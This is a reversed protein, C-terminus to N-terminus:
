LCRQTLRKKIYHRHCRREDMEACLLVVQGFAIILRRLKDLCNAEDNLTPPLKRTANGCWPLWLYKDGLRKELGAKTYCSLRAKHPYDRVDVVLDPKMADLEAFFIEPTKNGYGITRIM